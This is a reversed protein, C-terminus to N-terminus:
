TMLLDFVGEPAEQGKPKYRILKAKAARSLVKVPKAPAAAEAIVAASEIQPVTKLISKAAAKPAATKPATPKAAKPATPKAMTQSLLSTPSIHLSFM